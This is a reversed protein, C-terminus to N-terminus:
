TSSGFHMGEKFTAGEWWPTATILFLATTRSWLFWFPRHWPYFFLLYFNLPGFISLWLLFCTLVQDQSWSIDLGSTGLQYLMLEIILSLLYPLVQLRFIKEFIYKVNNKGPCPEVNLFFKMLGAPSTLSAKVQGSINKTLGSILSLEKWITVETSIMAETSLMFLICHITTVYTLNDDLYASGFTPKM